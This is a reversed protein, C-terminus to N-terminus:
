YKAICTMDHELVFELTAWNPNPWAPPPIHAQLGDCRFERLKHAGRPERNPVGVSVYTGKQFSLSVRGNRDTRYEVGNIRVPVNIFGPDLQVKLTVPTLKLRVLIQTCDIDQAGKDDTVKLCANYFGVRYRHRVIEVRGARKEPPSGDGFDLEWQVIQGDPDRSARGDLEVEVTCGQESCERVPERVRLAAIPKRNPPLLAIIAYEQSIQQSNGAKDTAKVQLGWSGPELEYSGSCATSQGRQQGDRRLVVTCSDLGSASDSAFWVVKLKSGQDVRYTGSPTLGISPASMDLRVTLQQEKEHNDMNDVAFFRIEYVGELVFPLSFRGREGSATSMLNLGQEGIRLEIGNIIIHLEQIGSGNPEDTISFNVTVSTNHWGNHNPRPTVEVQTIPPTTDGPQLVRFAVQFQFTFMEWLTDRVEIITNLRGARVPTGEIRVLGDEEVMGDNAFKLGPPLVSSPFPPLPNFPGEVRAVVRRLGFSSRAESLFKQWGEEGMIEKLSLSFQQPQGVILSFSKQISFDTKGKLELLVRGLSGQRNIAKYVSSAIPRVSKIADRLDTGCRPTKILLGTPEEALREIEDLSRFIRSASNLIDKELLKDRLDECDGGACKQIAQQLGELLVNLTDITKSTNRHLDQCLQGEAKLVQFWLITARGITILDDVTGVAVGIINLRAGLKAAWKWAVKGTFGGWLREWVTRLNGWVTEVTKLRTLVRKGEFRSLSLPILRTLNKSLKKSAEEYAKDPDYGAGKIIDILKNFNEKADKVEGEKWIIEYVEFANWFLLIVGAVKNTLRKIDGLPVKKKLRAELWDNLEKLKNQAKDIGLNKRVMEIIKEVVARQKETSWDELGPHLGLYELVKELHYITQLVDLGLSEWNQALTVLAESFDGFGVGKLIKEALEELGKKILEQSEKEPPRGRQQAVIPLNHNRASVDRSLTISVPTQLWPAFRVDASVADGQGPGAGSPGSSHGWWNEAADILTHTVTANLVGFHVNGEINNKSIRLNTIDVGVRIGFANEKIINQSITNIDSAILEIGVENDVITNAELINRPSNILRISTGGHSRIVNGKLTNGTSRGLFIGDDGNNEITNSDLINGDADALQVGDDANEHILNGRVTNQAAGELLLGVENATITNNELWSESTSILAIGIVSHAVLNDALVIGKVGEIFIGYMDGNTIEFGRLQVQDAVIRVVQFEGQGDIVARGNISQLTIRPVPIFEFDSCQPPNKCHWRGTVISEKYPGQTADVLITDGEAAKEIAEQITPFDQPVRIERATVSHGPIFVAFVLAVLGWAASLRIGRKAVGDEKAWPGAPPFL